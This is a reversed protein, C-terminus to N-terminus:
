TFHLLLHYKLVSNIERGRERGGGERLDGEQEEEEELWRENEYVM